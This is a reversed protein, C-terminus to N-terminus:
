AGQRLDHWRDLHPGSDPGAHRAAAQVDLVLVDAGTSAPAAHTTGRVDSSPPQSHWCTRACGCPRSTSRRLM